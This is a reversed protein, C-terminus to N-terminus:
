RTDHTTHICYAYTYESINESGTTGPSFVFGNANWVTAHTNTEKTNIGCAIFYGDTQKSLKSLSKAVEESGDFMCISYCYGMSLLQYQLILSWTGDAIQEDTMENIFDPITNIDEIDLISAICAQLCNGDNGFRTQKVEIM